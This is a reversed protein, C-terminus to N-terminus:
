LNFKKKILSKLDNKSVVGVNQFIAEGKKFFILTPISMIGYNSAVEKSEIINIKGIKIKDKYEKAIEEIIPLLKKCPSCTESFFDVIYFDESELVEKKFSNDNLNILSM